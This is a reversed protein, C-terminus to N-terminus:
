EAPPEVMDPTIPQGKSIPVAAVKGVVDRITLAGESAPAFGEEVDGILREGAAIDTNAVMVIRPDEVPTWTNDAYMFNRHWLPDEGWLEMTLHEGDFDWYYTAPVQREFASHTMETYLDGITAYTFRVEWGGKGDHSLGTGDEDFVLLLHPNEVSLLSGTPFAMADSEDDQAVATGGLGGLLVLMVTGILGLRLTRM